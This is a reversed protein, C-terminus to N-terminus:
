LKMALGMVAFIGGLFVFFPVALVGVWLFVKPVTQLKEVSLKKKAEARALLKRYVYITAIYSVPITVLLGILLALVGLINVVVAVVIFVFLQGKYGETMAWSMRVAEMVGTNKDVVLVAAFMLAIAAIVGPVIFFMGGGLIIFHTVIIIGFFVWFLNIKKFLFSFRVPKNDYMRLVIEIIGIGLVVGVVLSGVELIFIMIMGSVSGSLMLFEQVVGIVLDFCVMFLTIGILFWPKKKFVEWGFKFAEIVEFAEGSVLEGGSRQRVKKDPKPIGTKVKVVKKKRRKAEM